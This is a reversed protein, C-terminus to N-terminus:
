ESKTFILKSYSGILQAKIESVSKITCGAEQVAIFIKGTTHAKFLARHGLKPTHASPDIPDERM